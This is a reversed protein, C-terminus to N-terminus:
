GAYPAAPDGALQHLLAIEWDLYRRFERRRAAESELDGPDLHKDTPRSALQQLGESVGHGAARWAAMGGDLLRVPRGLRKLDAMLLAAYAFDDAVLATTEAEPVRVLDRELDARTLFIAGPVHGRRYAVSSRCDIVVPAKSNRLEAVTIRPGPAAPRESGGRVLTPATPDLRAAYVDRWGMQKLWSGTMAARVGDSDLLVVRAGRTVLYRDVNQVLQGGPVHRASPLHGQSFAAQGRVDIVYLTRPEARWGAVTELTVHGVGHHAAVAAAVERAVSGDSPVGLPRNAGKELAYGEFVWAMTGNELAAVQNALGAGILTQAGIISRTRGACHAVVLAEPDFSAGFARYVLEGGPCSLAGPICFSRHEEPTRTDLIVTPLNEDLRAKLAAATISPTENHSEVFEGFAKGPVNVGSFLAGGDLAWASLGGDLAALNRYGLGALVAGAREVTGEGDDCLVVLTDRRPVAKAILLELRSLPLNSAALLHGRTFLAEERPDVVAFERDSEFLARFADISLKEM